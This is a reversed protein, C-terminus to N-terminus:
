DAPLGRMPFCVSFSGSSETVPRVLMVNVKKEVLDKAEGRLEHLAGLWASRDSAIPVKPAAENSPDM